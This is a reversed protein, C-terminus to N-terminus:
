LNLIREINNITLKLMRQRTFKELCRQRGNKGMKERESPHEIMWKMGKYLHDCSKPQVLIGSVRDEIIESPGPIDTTIIPLEFAMAQQIVMSFGERYSPHVLVTSLSLYKEVENTYGIFIIRKNNKVDDSLIESEMKGVLLLVVNQYEQSLKCFAELLECIGKDKNIRGIFTFVFKNELIPIETLLERKLLPKRHIDFRKLDVGVTGGDGLVIAKEKQYLREEVAFQLNKWSASYINTSCKCIYKEIAKFFIRIIGKMGVYRIGWQCYVRVPMQALKAGISAYLSANPTAYQIYDFKERKFIKKFLFPITICDILSIGRKMKIDICHFEDAFQSYFPESMNCILTVDYGLKKMERMAPIVFNSMTVDVTTIACLKRMPCM